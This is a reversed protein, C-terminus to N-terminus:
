PNYNPSLQGVGDAMYAVGDETIMFAVKPSAASGTGVVFLAKTSYPLNVPYRGVTLSNPYSSTNGTGVLLSNGEDIVNNFGVALGPSNNASTNASGIAGAGWATTQNATGVNLYYDNIGSFLAPLGAVCLVGVTIWILYRYNKM